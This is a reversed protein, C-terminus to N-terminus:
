LAEAAIVDADDLYFVTNEEEPLGFLETAPSPLLVTQQYNPDAVVPFLVDLDDQSVIGDALAETRLPLFTASDYSVTETDLYQAYFVGSKQLWKLGVPEGLKAFMLPRFWTKLDAVSVAVRVDEQPVPNQGYTPENLIAVKQAVTLGTYLQKELETKLLLLQEGTLTTNTGLIQSVVTTDINKNGSRM